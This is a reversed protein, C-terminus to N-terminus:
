GVAVRLVINQGQRTENSVTHGDVLLRQKVYEAMSDRYWGQFAGQHIYDVSSLKPNNTCIKADNGYASYKPLILFNNGGESRESFDVGAKRLVSKLSEASGINGDVSIKHSM